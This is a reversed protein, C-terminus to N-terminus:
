QPKIVLLHGDPDHMGIGPSQRLLRLLARRILGFALEEARETRRQYALAVAERQLDEPLDKLAKRITTLRQRLAVSSINLVLCIEERNLGLLILAVVRRAAPKFANLLRVHAEAHSGVEPYSDSALTEKTASSEERNKRRSESRAMMAARNKLVGTFWKRNQEITFDLREQEFAVLLSEQLLDQADNPTRSFKRALPLWDYYEELDM